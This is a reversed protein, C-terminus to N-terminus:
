EGECEYEENLIIDRERIENTEPSNRNVGKWYGQIFVRKHDGGKIYQNRWHGTVYWRLKTYIKAHKTAEELVEDSIIYRKVYRIKSKSKKNRLNPQQFVAKSSHKIFVETMKPNLLAIQIGYWAQVYAFIVEFINSAASLMEPTGVDFSHELRKDDTIIGVSADILMVPQPEDNEVCVGFHTYFQLGDAYHLLVMVCPKTQPNEQSPTDFVIIRCYDCSMGQPNKNNIHNPNRIIVDRLPLTNAWLIDSPIYSKDKGYGYADKDWFSAMKRLMNESLFVEDTPISNEMIRIFNGNESSPRRAVNLDIIHRAEDTNNLEDRVMLMIQNILGDTNMNPNRQRIISELMEIGGVESDDVNPNINFGFKTKRRKMVFM